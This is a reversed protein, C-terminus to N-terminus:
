FCPNESNGHLCSVIQVQSGTQMVGFCIQKLDQNQKREKSIYTRYLM